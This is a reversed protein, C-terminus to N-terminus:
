AQPKPVFLCFEEAATEWDALLGAAVVSKALRVHEELLAKLGARQEETAAAFPVASLFETHYRQERQMRGGRDLVWALGGTMGAGFNIGVRGLIVAMGGTMYECAHDGVGEVVVTV